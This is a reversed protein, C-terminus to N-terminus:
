IPWSNSSKRSSPSPNGRSECPGVMSMSRSRDSRPTIRQNLEDSSRRLRNTRRGVGSKAPLSSTGTHAHSVRRLNARVRAVLERMVFPKTLYDDAGIELGLIRDFDEGKASLFVVPMDSFARIRRCVQIGDLGPLMVDLVVLDPNLERAKSVATVGDAATEISWGEKRLSYAIADLLSREDDVVLITPVTGESQVTSNLSIVGASPCGADSRRSPPINIRNYPLSRRQNLLFKCNPFFTPLWRPLSSGLERHYLPASIPVPTGTKHHLVRFRM